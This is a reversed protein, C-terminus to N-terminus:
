SLRFHLKKEERSSLLASAAIGLGAGLALRLWPLNGHFGMIEVAVDAANLISFALLIKRAITGEVRMLAGLGLGAYIGSCRACVAWPQGSFRFSREPSQHCVARFFDRVVLSVVDMGNAALWPTAWAALLLGAAVVALVFRANRM